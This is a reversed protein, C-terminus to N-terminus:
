VERQLQPHTSVRGANAVLVGLLRYEIPRSIFTPAPRKSSAPQWTRDYAIRMSVGPDFSALLVSPGTAHTRLDQRLRAIATRGCM